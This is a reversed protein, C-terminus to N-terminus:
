VAAARDRHAVDRHRAEVCCAADPWVCARLPDLREGVRRSEAARKRYAPCRAARFQDFERNTSAVLCQGLSETQFHRRLTLVRGAAPISYANWCAWGHLM